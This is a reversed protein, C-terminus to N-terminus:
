ADTPECGLRDQLARLRALDGGWARWSRELAIWEKSVLIGDVFALPAGEVQVDPCGDAPRAAVVYVEVRISRGEPTRWEATRLPSPFPSEPHGPRLVPLIGVAARVETITRGIEVAAIRERMAHVPLVRPGAPPATRCSALALAVALMTALPAVRQLPEM